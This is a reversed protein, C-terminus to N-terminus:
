LSNISAKNKRRVYWVTARKLTHQVSGMQGTEGRKTKQVENRKKLNSGNKNQASIKMKEEFQENKNKM